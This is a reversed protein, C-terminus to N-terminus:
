FKAPFFFSTAVNIKLLFHCELFMSLDTTVFLDLTRLQVFLNFGFLPLFFCFFVLFFLPFCALFGLFPGFILYHVCFFFLRWLNGNQCGFPSPRLRAWFDQDCKKVFQIDMIITKMFLCMTLVVSAVHFKKPTKTLQPDPAKTPPIISSCPVKCYYLTKGGHAPYVHLLICTPSLFHM